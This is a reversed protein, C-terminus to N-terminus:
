QVGGNRMKRRYLYHERICIAVFEAAVTSMYGVVGAVMARPGMPIGFESAVRVTLLAVFGSLVTNLAIMKWTRVGRTYVEMKDM